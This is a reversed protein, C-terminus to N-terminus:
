LFLCCVLIDSKDMDALQETQSNWYVALSELKVLQWYLILSHNDASDGEGTINEFAKKKEGLSLVTM